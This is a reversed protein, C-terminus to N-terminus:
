RKLGFLLLYDSQNLETLNILQRCYLLFLSWHDSKKNLIYIFLDRSTM